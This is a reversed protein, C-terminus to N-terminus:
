RSRRLRARDRNVIEEASSVEEVSDFLEAIRGEAKPNNISSMWRCLGVMKALKM